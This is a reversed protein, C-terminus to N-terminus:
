HIKLNSTVINVFWLHWQLWAMTKSDIGSRKKLKTRGKAAAWHLAALSQFSIQLYNALILGILHRFFLAFCFISLHLWYNKINFDDKVNIDTHFTSMVASVSQMIELLLKRREVVEEHTLAFKCLIQFHFHTIHWNCLMMCYILFAVKGSVTNLHMM